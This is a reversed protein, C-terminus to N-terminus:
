TPPQLDVQIWERLSNVLWLRSARTVDERLLVREVLAGSAVLEARFVGPLLPLITPPTCRVGDIEAVLNAITSETVAGSQAWLLVDDLDPRAARAAEYVRRRTTKIRLFPDTEDVAHAAFGVRWPRDSPQPLPTCEATPEGAPSLLLRIRWRGSPHRGAVDALARAVRREDWAFGCQDAATGMRALHGAERVLRGDELRMTELLSFEAVPPSAMPNGIKRADPM